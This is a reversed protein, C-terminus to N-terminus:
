RTSSGKGSSDSSWGAALGVVDQDLGARADARDLGAVEVLTPGNEGQRARVWIRRPRIFLSLCLGTVAFGIAVLSIPVGPSDGIQLKVWRVWGEMRITGLGDPLTYSTGPTLAMRLPDGSPGKLQTLGATDLSYVNEPRGTEQKPPGSWANLFLAPNAADPFVSRPGQEDLVATPLFLGEFALREPRGDPAKVVGASTFNGDQPLFVVPGSFAVNGDGDTVTVTPAYGHGILHVTTGDITLPRNVELTETRTPGGPSDTVEVQAEFLRAAGRQVEGTEFKADFDLVKINFPVLDDNRFWAGATFDDYQTLNNSFGQGSIVVSTGRFGYLGAVAVGLLVFLLSVHFLLNGAERLYGREASVSDVGRSIRYRQAVLRREAQELVESVGLGTAEAVVYAPLRSLNQPTRPPRGRLAKAYVSVRPVICGVLSVFLLLYIASFWPSTYVHFLGVTDYIPGLTPHEAIFDSVRVPSIARQPVVSGPIAAIALAFLLALATRM